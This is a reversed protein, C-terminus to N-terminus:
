KGAESLQRQVARQGEIADFIQKMTRITPNVKAGTEIERVINDNSNGPILRAVRYASIGLGALSGAVYDRFDEASPFQGEEPFPKEQAPM